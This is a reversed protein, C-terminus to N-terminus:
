KSSANAWRRGLGARVQERGQHLGLHVALRQAAVLQEAGRQQQQDGAELRGDVQEAVGDRV